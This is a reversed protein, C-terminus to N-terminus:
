RYYKAEEVLRHIESLISDSTASSDAHHLNGLESILKDLEFLLGDNTEQITDISALMEQYIRLREARTSAGSHEGGLSDRQVSKFLRLYGAADFAQIRNAMLAANRLIADFAAQAPLAFKDYSLSERQFTGDIEAELLQRRRRMSSLTHIVNSAREGLVQDGEYARMVEVIQEPTTGEEVDLRVYATPETAPAPRTYSQTRVGEPRPPTAGDPGDMREVVVDRAEQTATQRGGELLKQERAWGLLRKGGRWAARGAFYVVAASGVATLAIITFLLDLFGM